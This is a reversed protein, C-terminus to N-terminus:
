TEGANAKPLQPQSQLSAALLWTCVFTLRSTRLAIYRPLRSSSPHNLQCAFREPINSTPDNPFTVARESPKKECLTALLQLRSQRPVLEGVDTQQAPLKASNRASHTPLRAQSQTHPALFRLAACAGSKSWIQDFDQWFRGFEGLNPRFCALSPRNRRFKTGIRGSDALTRRFTASVVGSNAVKALLYESDRRLSPWRRRFLPPNGASVKRDADSSAAGRLLMRTVAKRQTWDQHITSLM